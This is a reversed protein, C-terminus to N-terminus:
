QVACPVAVHQAELALANGAVERDILVVEMEGHREAEQQAGHSARDLTLHMALELPEEARLAAMLSLLEDKFCNIIAPEQLPAAPRKGGIIPEGILAYSGAMLSM